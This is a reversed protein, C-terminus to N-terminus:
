DIFHISRAVIQVANTTNNEWFEFSVNAYANSKSTAFTKITKYFSGGELRIVELTVEYNGEKYENFKNEADAKAKEKRSNVIENHSELTEALANYVMIRNPGCGTTAIENLPYSNTGAFFNDLNNITSENASIGGGLSNIFAVAEQTNAVLASKKFYNLVITKM